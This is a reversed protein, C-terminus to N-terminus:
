AGTEVPFLNHEKLFIEVTESTNTRKKSYNFNATKGVLGSARILEQPTMKSPFTEILKLVEGALIKKLRLFPYLLQLVEKVEKFGVITYETM